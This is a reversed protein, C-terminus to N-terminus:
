EPKIGAARILRAMREQYDKMVVALAEPSTDAPRIVGQDDLRKKMDPDDMARRIEAHLREVIPRPLKAPGAIAYWTTVNFDSGPVLEALTPVQPLFPVRAPTSATLVRAKGNNVFQMMNPTGVATSIQNGIFDTNQPGGGKYPIITVDVNTVAKFASAVVLTVSDSVGM